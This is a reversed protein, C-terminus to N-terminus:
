NPFHFVLGVGVSQLLHTGSQNTIGSIAGIGFEAIRIDMVPLARLDLGAFGQYAIGHDIVVRGNQFPLATNVSANPTRGADTRAFGVSGQVFPALLKYRTPFTARLGGMATYLRGGSGTSTPDAGHSSSAISGRLDIGLRVRGINRFDYYAGGTGGIPSFSGDTHTTLINATGRGVTSYTLSGLNQATVMGYVAGQAHALPALAFPLVALLAAKGLNM